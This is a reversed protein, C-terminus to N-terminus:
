TFIFTIVIFSGCRLKSLMLPDLEEPSSIRQCRDPLAVDDPLVLASRIPPSLRKPPEPWVKEETSKEEEGMEAREDEEGPLKIRKTGVHSNPLNAPSPAALVFTM